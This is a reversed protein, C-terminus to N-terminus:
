LAARTLAIVVWQGAYIPYFVRRVRPLQVDLLVVIAVIMPAVIPLLNGNSWCIFGLGALGWGYSRAETTRMAHFLCAVGLVGTTSYEVLMSALLVAIMGLGRYKSVGTVLQEFLIGLAFTFLINLPAPDRVLAVAVVSICGWLSLRIIVSRIHDANSRALGCALAFAFLPFVARGVAHPWISSWEFAFGAFHEFLMLVCAVWKLVEVHGSQIRERWDGIASSATLPLSAM